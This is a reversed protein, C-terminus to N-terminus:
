FDEVMGIEIIVTSIGRCHPCKIWGRQQRYYPAKFACNRDRCCIMRVTTRNDSLQFPTQDYVAVERSHFKAWAHLM